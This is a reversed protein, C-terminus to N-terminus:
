VLNVGGISLTKLINVNEIYYDKSVVFYYKNVKEYKIYAKVKIIPYLVLYLNCSLSCGGFMM